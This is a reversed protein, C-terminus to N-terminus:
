ILIKLILILVWEDERMLLIRILGFNVELLVWEFYYDVWIMSLELKMYM